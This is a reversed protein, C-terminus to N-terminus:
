GLHCAGVGSVEGLLIILTHIIVMVTDLHGLFSQRVVFGGGHGFDSEGTGGDSLGFEFSHIVHGLEEFVLHIISM